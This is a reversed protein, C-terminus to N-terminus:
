CACADGGNNAADKVPVSVDIIQEATANNASGDTDENSFVPLQKGIRKFLPKVGFGNKSSTEMFLNCNLRQAADEGDQLTVKRDNDLDNKNGVLVIIVDGGREQKVYNIWTDVNEFSERNSIDYVVVAVNSDRIYSPILSRFREQGATDWLQLRITTDQIYMTKSLFDIGVTAAYHADFSDYMFRTLLSTKGVGQDGLFVLKFKTLVM